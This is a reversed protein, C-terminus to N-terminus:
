GHEAQRVSLSEFTHAMTRLRRRHDGRPIGVFSSIKELIIREHLMSLSEDSRSTGRLFSVFADHDTLEQYIRQFTARIISANRSISSHSLTERVAEEDGLFWVWLEYSSSSDKLTQSAFRFLYPDFSMAQQIFDKDNRLEDALQSFSDAKVRRTAGREAVLLFKGRDSKWNDPHSHTIPLGAQFWKKVIDDDNWMRPPMEAALFDGLFNWEYPFDTKNYTLHSLNSIFEEPFAEIFNTKLHLVYKPNEGLLTLVVGQYRIQDLHELCSELKRCVREVVNACTSPPMFGEELIAALASSGEDNPGLVTNWFEPDNQLQSNSRLIESCFANDYDHYESSRISGGECYPIQELIEKAPEQRDVLTKCFAINSQFSVPLRDFCLKGKKVAASLMEETIMPIQEVSQVLGRGLAFFSLKVSNVWEDCTLNVEDWTLFGEDVLELARQRNPSSCLQPIVEQLVQESFHKRHYRYLHREVLIHQLCADKDNRLVEPLDGWEKTFSTLSGWVVAARLAETKTQLAQTTTKLAEKTVRLEEEIALVQQWLRGGEEDNSSTSITTTRQKKAPPPVSSPDSM